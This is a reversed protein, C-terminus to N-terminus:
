CVVPLEASGHSGTNLLGCSRNSGLALSLSQHLTGAILGERLEAPASGVPRAALAVEILLDEESSTGDGSSVSAPASGPGSLSRAVSTKIALPLRVEAGAAFAPLLGSAPASSRPGITSAFPSSMVLDSVQGTDGAAAAIQQQRAPGAAGPCVSPQLVLGGGFGSCLRGSDSLQQPTDAQSLSRCSSQLAQSGALLSDSCTGHQQQQQQGSGQRAPQRSDSCVRDLQGASSSGLIGQPRVLAATAKSMLSSSSVNHAGLPQACTCPTKLNVLLVTIDDRSHRQKRACLALARAAVGAAQCASCVRHQVHQEAHKQQVKLLTKHAYDFVEEHSMVDWLGDSALVLFEQEESRPISLVEPTPVVGYPQLDHDGIARTTALIGMVRM